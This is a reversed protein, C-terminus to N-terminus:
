LRHYFGSYLGSYLWKLDVKVVSLSKAACQLQLVTEGHIANFNGNCVAVWVRLGYMTYQIKIPWTKSESQRTARKFWGAPKPNIPHTQIKNNNLFWCGGYVYALCIGFMHWVKGEREVRYLNKKCETWVIQTHRTWLFGWVGSLHM